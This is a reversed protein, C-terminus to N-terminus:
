QSRQSKLFIMRQKIAAAVKKKANEQAVINGAVSTVPVGTKLKRQDKLFKANGERGTYPLRTGGNHRKKMM